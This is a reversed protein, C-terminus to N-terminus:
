SVIDFRVFAHSLTNVIQDDVKLTAAQRITVNTLFVLNGEVKSVTGKYHINRGEDAYIVTVRKGILEEM